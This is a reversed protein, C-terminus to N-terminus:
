GLLCGLAISALKAQATDSRSVLLVPVKAGVVIGANKAGAFLTLAKGLANGVEYAPVLLVDAEGAGPATFHKHACAEKSVALDLGVPGIVDMNYQEKWKPLAALYEADTTAPIKPNVAEAGCVCSAFIRDYGLAKLAKAANELIGEKQELTPAPTLGGDTNVLLKPYGPVEYFMLHSLLGEGRIGTERNLVARMLDGTQLLGKLICNARGERVAQVAKAACDPGDEAPVIAFEAPDAGLEKLIAEIEDAHGVLVAEAVGLKKAEIVAKLVDRDHAAAVAACREPMAAARDIIEQMSHLRGKTDM